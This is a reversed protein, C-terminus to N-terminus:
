TMFYGSSNSRNGGLGGLISALPGAMTGLISPWASQQQQPYAMLPYGTAAAYQYPLMPSNYGRTRLWEQYIRDIENQGIGYQQQGLASGVGLNQMWLRSLDSAGGLGLNLLALQRQIENQGAGTEVGYLAQAARMAQDNLADAGRVSGGYMQNALNYLHNMQWMDNQFDQASLQSIGQQAMQGLTSAAGYQRGM